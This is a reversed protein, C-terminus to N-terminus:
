KPVKESKRFQYVTKKFGRYSGLDEVRTELV